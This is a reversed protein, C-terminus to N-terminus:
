AAERKFFRAELAERLSRVAPTWDDGSQRLLRANPHPYWCWTEGNLGMRWDPRSPTMVYTPHGMAASLHAVTQTVTVVADTAAVLAATHEYDFHWVISPHWVFRGAGFKQQVHEALPTMDEYDLSVFLYREDSFLREIVDLPLIRYLRATMMTGGRTALGIIKRGQAISELHARYEAREKEPATYWPGAWPFDDAKRRYFQGLNGIATKAQAEVSWGKDKEKRTPYLTIPHGESSMWRAHEFLWTLRPHHDYIVHYDRKASYLMTAFMLEDGLGQEGYVLLRPASM